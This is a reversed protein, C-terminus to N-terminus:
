RDGATVQEVLDLHVHELKEKGEDDHRGNEHEKEEVLSGLTDSDDVRQGKFELHFEHIDRDTYDKVGFHEMAEARVVQLTTSEPYHKRFPKPAPLYAVTTDVTEVKPKSETQSM